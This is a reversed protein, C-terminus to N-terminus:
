DKNSVKGYQSQEENLRGYLVFGTITSLYVAFPASLFPLIAPGSLSVYLGICTLLLITGLVLKPCSVVVRISKIWLAKGRLGWTTAFSFVFLCAVLVVIALSGDLILPIIIWSEGPNADFLLLTGIILMMILGPILSVKIGTFAHRRVKQIFMNLNIEEKRVICDTLAITGTWVPGHFLAAVLPIFLTGGFLYFIFSPIVSLFILIDIALLLPMYEWISQGAFVLVDFFSIDTEEVMM